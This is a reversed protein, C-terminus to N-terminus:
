CDIDPSKCGRIMDTLKLLSNESELKRIKMVLSNHDLVRNRERITWERETMIVLGGIKKM